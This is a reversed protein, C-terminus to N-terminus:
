FIFLCALIVPCSTSMGYELRPSVFGTKILISDICIVIHVSVVVATFKVCSVRRKTRAVAVPAAVAVVAVAAAAVAVGVSAAASGM